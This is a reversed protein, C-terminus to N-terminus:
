KHKNEFRQKVQYEYIVKWNGKLANQSLQIVGRAVGSMLAVNKELLVTNGNPDKVKYTVSGELPRLDPM